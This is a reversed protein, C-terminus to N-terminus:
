CIFETSYSKKLYVLDLCSKSAREVKCIFCNMKLKIICVNCFIRDKLDLCGVKRHLRKVGELTKTWDICFKGSVTGGESLSMFDNLKIMGHEKSNGKFTRKASIM